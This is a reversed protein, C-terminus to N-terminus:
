TIYLINFSMSAIVVIIKLMKELLLERKKSHILFLITLVPLIIIFQSIFTRSYAKNLLIFCIIYLYYLFFYKNYKIFFDKIKRITIDKKIFLVILYVLLAIGIIINIHLEIDDYLYISNASLILLLSIFYEIICIHPSVIKIIKFNSM